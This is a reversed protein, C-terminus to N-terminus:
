ETDCSSVARQNAVSFADSFFGTHDTAPAAHDPLDAKLGAIGGVSGASM